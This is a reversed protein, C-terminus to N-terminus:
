PEKRLFGNWTLVVPLKHPRSWVIKVNVFSRQFPGFDNTCGLTSQHNRPRISIFQSLFTSFPSLSLSFPLIAFNPLIYFSVSLVFPLLLLLSFDMSFPSLPCRCADPSVSALPTVTFQCLANFNRCCQKSSCVVDYAYAYTIHLTVAFLLYYAM